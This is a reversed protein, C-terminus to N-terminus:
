INVLHQYEHKGLSSIHSIMKSWQNRFYIFCNQLDLFGLKKLKLSILSKLLIAILELEKYHNKISSILMVSFAIIDFFYLCCYSFEPSCLYVHHVGYRGSRM